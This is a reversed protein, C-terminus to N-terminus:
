NILGERKFSFYNNDTLIIHDQLSVDILKLANIITNTIKLDSESPEAVGGPHNHAIIISTAKLKVAEEIIKRPFLAAETVTGEGIEKLELIENKANLFIAFIVENVKHGIKSRLLNILESMKEISQKGSRANDEFYYGIIERFAHLSVASTNGMGEIRELEEISADMAKSFSGFTAILQKAIPKVDKRLIIFALLFELVEYDNFGKFGGNLFRDRLRERHGATKVEM